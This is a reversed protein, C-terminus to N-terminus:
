KSAAPSAATSAAPSTATSPAASTAAPAASTAAPSASPLVKRVLAALDAYARPLGASIQGGGIRFSPTSSIGLSAASATTARVAQTQATEAICADWATRDVGVHDALRKLNDASFAGKNEGDQNYFLWDHFAWYKGQPAACAAAVAAAVSENDATAGLIAIDHAVIRAQGTLVFDTVLRPFYDRVLTGCIPCQFDAWVEIKVLSTAKGVEEGDVLSAAAISVANAPPAQFDATSSSPKQLLIILVAIVVVAALSVIAFPSRWAPTKQAAARARVRPTQARELERRERRTPPPSSPKVPPQPPLTSRM